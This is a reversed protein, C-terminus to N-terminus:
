HCVWRYNEYTDVIEYPGYADYGPTRVETLYYEKYCNSDQRSLIASLVISTLVIGTFIACANGGTTFSLETATLTRM